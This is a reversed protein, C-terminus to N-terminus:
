AYLLFSCEYGTQALLESVADAQYVICRTRVIRYM